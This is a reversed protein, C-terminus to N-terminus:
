GSLHASQLVEAAKTSILNWARDVHAATMNTQGISLRILYKGDIKTHTIYIEGSANLQNVIQSNFENIQNESWNGEPKFRFCVLNLPPPIFLEFDPRAQIVDAIHQSNNIDNRVKEKLGALGYSRIVFWLKLARFRRGLPIGWDRYNNTQSTHQTKLYEPLIEFTRILTGKDKVFYATCDFNTLMWKHPNFVYSDAKEIGDILYRYEPLIMATGAHAADIHFWIGLSECIEGIEKIPDMAHTSTSGISAIVCGPQYGAAVDDAIAKRLADPRMALQLDVPIKVVNQRGFGAIKAGKEISSHTESSCYIRIRDSPGFGSENIRFDTIRERASLMACLTAESATSQIAGTWSHPLGCMDRLWNIMMEELEAAAPSTDWIMCQAALTATLMEALISPPSSNAQFYAFFGPSQWHTIGPVIVRQFDEFITEMSEGEFPPAPSLQHFIQRPEVQSKVPFTEVNELYDTMWDVLLHAQKRFESLNM